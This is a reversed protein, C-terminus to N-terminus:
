KQSVKTLRALLNEIIFATAGWVRHNQYYYAPTQFVVEKWRVDEQTYTAELAELGAWFVEEVEEVSRGHGLTDLANEKLWGVVPTVWYSSSLTFIAPLLGLVEIDKSPIGVEEQTERLAEEIFVQDTVPSEERDISGGPFSIQGPHEPLHATRKTLLLSTSGENQGLLVLVAAQKRQSSKESLNGRLSDKVFYPHDLRIAEKLNERTVPMAHSFHTM